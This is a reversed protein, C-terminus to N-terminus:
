GGNLLTRLQCIREYTQEMMVMTSGGEVNWQSLHDYLDELAQCAFELDSQFPPFYAPAYLALAKQLEQWSEASIQGGETSEKMVKWAANSVSAAIRYSRMAAVIHEAAKQTGVQMIFASMGTSDLRELEQLKGEPLRMLRSGM